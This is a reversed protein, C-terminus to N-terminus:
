ASSFLRPPFTSGVAILNAAPSRSSLFALATRALKVPAICQGHNPWVGAVHAFCVFGAVAADAFLVDKWVQGQHRMLRPTLICLVAVLASPRVSKPAAFVLLSLYAGFCLIAYLMVFLATGRILAEGIGLRWAMVPPRWANYIGTPGLLPQERSDYSLHGSLNAAPETCAGALIFPSTVMAGVPLFARATIDGEKPM